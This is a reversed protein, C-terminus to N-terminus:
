FFPFACRVLRRGREDTSLAIFPPEFVPQCYPALSRNSVDFVQRPHAPLSHLNSILRIKDLTKGWQLRAHHREPRQESGEDDAATTDMWAVPRPETLIKSQENQEAEPHFPKQFYNQGEAEGGQSPQRTRELDDTSPLADETDENRVPHLEHAEEKGVDDANESQSSLDVEHRKAAATAAAAPRRSGHHLRLIDLSGGDSGMSSLRERVRHWQARPDFPQSSTSVPQHRRTHRSVGNPPQRSEPSVPSMLNDDDGVIGNNDGNVQRQNGIHSESNIAAAANTQLKGKQAFYDATDRIPTSMAPSSCSPFPFM